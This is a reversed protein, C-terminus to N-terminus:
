TASPAAPKDKAKSGASSGWIYGVVIMVVNDLSPDSQHGVFKMWLWSLLIAAGLLNPVDLMKGAASKLTDVIM